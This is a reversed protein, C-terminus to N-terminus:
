LSLRYRRIVGEQLSLGLGPGRPPTLCGDELDLLDGALEQLLPNPNADMEMRWGGPVAALVHLSAAFGVAGGLYHPAYPVGWATALSCIAYMETLGGTKAVDPQVLDFSGGELARRFGTRGYLNEGGAVKLGTRLRFPEILEPEDVPFPEEITDVGTEHLTPALELARAFDLGQNADVLLIADDGVVGRLRSVNARDIELGFGVKLKFADVGRELFPACLTEPAVPGLGSAYVPLRQASGGWLEYIPRGLAQGKLDWLAIDVASIAQWLPGPAGWQLGLPRLTRSLKQHLWAIESADEGILLPAVGDSLTRVREQPSWSPFNGWSEGWGCLGEDSCVRVLIAVRRDMRGFSTQVPPDIPVQLVIPEVQTIKM